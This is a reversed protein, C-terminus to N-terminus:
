YFGRELKELIGALRSNHTSVKDSKMHPFVDEMRIEQLLRILTKVEGRDLSIYISDM